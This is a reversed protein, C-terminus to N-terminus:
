MAVASAVATSSKRPGLREDWAGFRQYNDIEHSWNTPSGIM